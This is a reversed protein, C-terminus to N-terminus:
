TGSSAQAFEPESPLDTSAAGNSAGTAEAQVAMTPVSKKKPTPLAQRFAASLPGELDFLSQLDYEDYLMDETVGDARLGIALLTVLNAVRKHQGTTSDRGALYANEWCGVWIATLTDHTEKDDEACEVLRRATDLALEKAVDLAEVTSQPRLLAVLVDGTNELSGFHDELMALGRNRYNLTFTRDEGSPVHHLTVPVGAAILQEADTAM